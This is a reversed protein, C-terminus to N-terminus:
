VNARLVKPIIHLFYRVELIKISYCAAKVSFNINKAGFNMLISNKGHMKQTSIAISETQDSISNMRFFLITYFNEFDDIFGKANLM